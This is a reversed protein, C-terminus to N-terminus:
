ALEFLNTLFNWLNAFRCPIELKEEEEYYVLEMHLKCFGILFILRKSDVLPGMSTPNRPSFWWLILRIAPSFRRNFTPTHGRKTFWKKCLIVCWHPQAQELVDRTKHLCKWLLFYLFFKSISPSMVKCPYKTSTGM